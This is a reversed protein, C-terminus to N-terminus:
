AQRGDSQSVSLFVSRVKKFESGPRYGGEAGQCNGSVKLSPRKAIIFSFPKWRKKCPGKYLAHFRVLLPCNFSTSELDYAPSGTSPTERPQLSNV